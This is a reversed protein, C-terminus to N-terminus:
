EVVVIKNSRSVNRAYKLKSKIGKRGSQVSFVGDNLPVMLRWGDLSRNSM